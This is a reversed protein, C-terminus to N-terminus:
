RSNLAASRDHPTWRFLPNASLSIDVVDFWRHHKWLVYPLSIQDQLSWHLNERWWEDFLIDIEPDLKRAFVTGAMLGNNEPYGERRYQAVQQAIPQGAYKQLRQSIAAEEYLCNRFPHRLMALGNDGVAAIMRRAFQPSTIQVCADVWIVHRYDYIGRDGHMASLFRFARHGSTKFFKAAIRPHLPFLDPSAINVVRWFSSERLREPRDTFLIYDCDIDQQVPPLVADYDGYMATYICAPRGRLQGLRRAGLTAYTLLRSARPDDPALEAARQFFDMAQRMRMARQMVDGLIMYAGHDEPALALHARAAQEAEALNGAAHLAVMLHRSLEAHAPRQQQLRRYAAIAREFDRARHAKLAAALEEDFSSM